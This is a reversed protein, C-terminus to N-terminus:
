RSEKQATIKEDFNRKIKEQKGSFDKDDQNLEQYNRNFCGLCYDGRGIWRAYVERGCDCYDSM